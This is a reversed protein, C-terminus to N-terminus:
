YDYRFDFDVAFVDCTQKETLHEKYNKKFVYDCYLKYFEPLEEKPINYKGGYINTEKDKYGIRTHTIITKKDNVTHKILFNQLTATAM